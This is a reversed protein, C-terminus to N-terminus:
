PEAVEVWLRRNSFTCPDDGSQRWFIMRFSFDGPPFPPLTFAYETRPGSPAGSFIAGGNFPLQVEFGPGAAVVGFRCDDATAGGPATMTAQALVTAFVNPGMTLDLTPGPPSLDTASGSSTSGTAEVAQYDVTGLKPPTVSEDALKPTTVAGAALKPASVSDDALKASTVSATALDFSKVRGDKIKRSRVANRALEKKRVARKAIQKARVANKAIAKSNVSGAPLSLAAYAGGGLGIFVALTAMVNAYSLRIRM